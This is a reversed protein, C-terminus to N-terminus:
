YTTYNEYNKDFGVRGKSRLSTDGGHPITSQHFDQAFGHNTKDFEDLHYALSIITKGLTPLAEMSPCSALHFFKKSKRRQYQCIPFQATRPRDVILFVPLNQPLGGRFSFTSIQSTVIEFSNANGFSFPCAVLDGHPAARRARRM